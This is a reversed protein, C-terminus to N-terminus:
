RRRRAIFLGLLGMLVLALGANASGGAVSCGGTSGGEATITVVYSNSKPFNANVADTFVLDGNLQIKYTGPEDATFSAVNGKNYHYEFPTSLRVTGQPNAVTASSGSPLQKVIWTYHIATNERNAFLRLRLPEGTKVKTDPSYVRFTVKPDLCNAQDGDVVFCFKSSCADGVGDRDSDVQDPNILIPCNDKENAVGDGDKDADCADGKLNKNTDLQDPNFVTPCNDKSDDIGDKDADNDCADGYLGPDSQEQKPNSVLPCNDKGNLVGDGDADPDCVDGIGDKNIDNQNPNPVLPCNDAANALGDNDADPDCLDGMGDGDHDLQDKNNMAPCNDCADGMGDGDGDAQGPNAVFPCNDVDDARGDQDYDDTYQYTDGTDTNNVLISGGGGCGCGGGSTQPTGCNGGQCEGMGSQAWATSYIFLGMGVLAAVTLIRRTM